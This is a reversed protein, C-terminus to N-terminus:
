QKRNSATLGPVQAIWVCACNPRLCPARELVLPDTADLITGNLALCSPPASREPGALFKVKLGPIVAASQVLQSRGRAHAEKAIARDADRRSSYRQSWEDEIQAAQEATVLRKVPDLPTAKVLMIRQCSPCKSKRSPM